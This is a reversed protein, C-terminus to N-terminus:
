IKVKSITYNFDDQVYTKIREVFHKMSYCKRTRWNLDDAIDFLTAFEKDEHKRLLRGVSQLTRIRSKGPSAFVANSLRKINVGTSYVGFSAVIIIDETEALARVDERAEAPTGGHIFFVKKDSKDRIMEFLPLGHSKVRDFLVLTSGDLSCALNCIFRNRRPHNILFDLENHWQRMKKREEDQYGLVACKIKFPSLTNNKILEATTTATMVPGFLGELVMKHTETGDLTGTFGFRYPIMKCGEMIKKLSKSKWKHAEDAVVCGFQAYFQEEESLLSQWTSIVIDADGVYHDEGGQIIKINHKDGSYEEIDKKMQSVLSLTPVIILTKDVDYNTMLHEATAYITLSKGSGTPSLILARSHKVCHEITARQYDREEFGKPIEITGVENYCSIYKSDNYCKIGNDRCFIQLQQFLGKYLTGKSTNFLHIKGSWVKNQYMPMFKYGPVFFSFHDNLMRRVDNDDTQIFMYTEDIDTVHIEPQPESM